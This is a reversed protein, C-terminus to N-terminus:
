RGGEQPAAETQLLAKFYAKVQEEYQRPYHEGLYQRLRDELNTRDNLLEAPLAPPVQYIQEEATVAKRQETFDKRQLSRSAQLMRSYVRLQREITEPGA